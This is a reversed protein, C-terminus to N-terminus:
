SSDLPRAFAVRSTLIHAATAAATACPCSKSSSWSEANAPPADRALNRHIPKRPCAKEDHSGGTASMVGLLPPLAGTATGNGIRWFAMTALDARFGRLTHLLFRRIFEPTQLTLIKRSITRM